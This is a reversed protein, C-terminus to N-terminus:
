ESGKVQEIFEVCENARSVVGVALRIGFTEQEGGVFEADSGIGAQDEFVGVEAHLCGLGRAHGV